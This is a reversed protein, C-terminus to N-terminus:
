LFLTLKGLLLALNGNELSSILENFNYKFIDFRSNWVHKSLERM